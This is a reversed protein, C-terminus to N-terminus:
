VPPSLKVAIQDVTEMVTYTVKNVADINSGTGTTLNKRVVVGEMMNVLIPNGAPDTLRIWM